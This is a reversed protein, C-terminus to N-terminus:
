LWLYPSQLPFIRFGSLITKSECEVTSTQSFTETASLTDLTQRTMALLTETDSTSPTMVATNSANSAIPALTTNLSRLFGTM